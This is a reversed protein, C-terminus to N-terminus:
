PTDTAQGSTRGHSPGPASAVMRKPLLLWYGGRSKMRGAKDFAAAGSGWFFDGRVPGKIAAGTDQALMLRRLPLGDPDKADLWLPAGLPIHDPDVALSRGPTLAVGQAGLPGEGDLLRFFIYRPNEAVLAAAEAPNAKLWAVVAPMTAQDRPLKGREILTKGIGVFRHGNSAAFGVRRLTGDPLTVRGSGQIHLLLVDVPDDAWLLVPAREGLAGREIEARRLYPVLRAGDLRGVLTETKGIDFPKLDVTVLDAPRGHIPHAFRGDPRPAARLEAEYYGTFLGEPQNGAAARWPEFWTEFYRRAAGNDGAPVAAAAACPAQWQGATTGSRGMPRDAPQRLLVACSRLLPPLAEAPRDEAWGPLDAFRAPALTLGDAAPEQRREPEPQPPSQPCGALALVALAAVALRRM